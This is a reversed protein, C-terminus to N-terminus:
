ETIKTPAEDSDWWSIIAFEFHNTQPSNLLTVSSFREMAPQAHSGTQFSFCKHIWLGTSLTEQPTQLRLCHPAKPVSKLRESRGEKQKQQARLQSFEVPGCFTLSLMLAEGPDPLPSPVLSAFPIDRANTTRRLANKRSEKPQSQM